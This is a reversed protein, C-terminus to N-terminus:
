SIQYLDKILARLVPRWSRQKIGFHGFVKRCSLSQRKIDTAMEIASATDGLTELAAQARQDFQSATTLVAEVLGMWSIEESCCYHYIGTNKAGYHRQKVMSLLVRAVDSVPTPCGIATDHFEIQAGSKVLNITNLVFDDQAGSFLWGTRLVINKENSLVTHEADLLKKAFRSRGDPEDNELYSSEKDGRFVHVGSLMYFPPCAEREIVDKLLGLYEEYDDQAVSRLSYADIIADCFASDLVSSSLMSVVNQCPTELWDFDYDNDYYQRIARGLETDSGLLVVKMPANINQQTTM